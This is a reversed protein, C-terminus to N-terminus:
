WNLTHFPTGNESDQGTTLTVMQRTNSDEKSYHRLSMFKISDGSLLQGTGTLLMKGQLLVSWEIWISSIM